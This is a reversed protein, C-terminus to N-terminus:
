TLGFSQDIQLHEDAHARQWIEWQREDGMDVQSLDVGTVNAQARLLTHVVQHDELWAKREGDTEGIRMLPHDAIVVAPSLGALHTVYNLHQRYHGVEWAGLGARDGFAVISPTFETM